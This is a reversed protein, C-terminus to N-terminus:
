FVLLYLISIVASLRSGSRSRRYDNGASHSNSTREPLFRALTRSFSRWLALVIAFSTGYISAEREVFAASAAIAASYFRIKLHTLSVMIIQFLNAVCTPPMRLISENTSAFMRAQRSVLAALM